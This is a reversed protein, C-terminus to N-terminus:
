ADPGEHGMRIADDHAVRVGLDLRRHFVARAEARAHGVDALVRRAPERVRHEDGLLEQLAVAEDHVQAVVEELAADRAEHGTGRRPTSQSIRRVLTGFGDDKPTASSSEEPRTTLSTSFGL